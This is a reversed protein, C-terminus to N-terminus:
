LLTDHGQCIACASLLSYVVTNCTCPLDKGQQPGGYTFNQVLPPIPFPAGVCPQILTSALECPSQGAKNFSWDFGAQCTAIQQAASSLAFAVLLFAVHM